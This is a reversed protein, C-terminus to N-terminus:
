YRDLVIRTKLVDHTLLWGASKMQSMAKDRLSTAEKETEAGFSLEVITETGNAEANKVPLVELKVETGAWKGKWVNSTVPGHQRTTGMVKDGWHKKSWDHLKGPMMELLWHRGTDDDPM